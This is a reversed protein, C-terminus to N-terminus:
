AQLTISEVVTGQVRVFAAFALAAGLVELTLALLNFGIVSRDILIGLARTLAVAACVLGLMVLGAPLRGPRRVCWFMFVALGLQIGAYTARFDTAGSGGLSIGAAGAFLVPSVFYGLGGLLFAVIALWLVVRGFRM